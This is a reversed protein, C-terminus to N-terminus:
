GLEVRNAGSVRARERTGERPHGGRGGGFGESRPSGVGCLEALQGTCAEIGMAQALCERARTAQAFQQLAVLAPQAGEADGLAAGAPEDDGAGLWLSQGGIEVAQLAVRDCQERRM